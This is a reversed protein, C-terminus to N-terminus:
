TYAMSIGYAKCTDTYATNISYTTCADTFCHKYQHMDFTVHWATVTYV